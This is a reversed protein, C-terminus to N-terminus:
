KAVKKLIIEHFIELGERNLENFDYQGQKYMGINESFLSMDSYINGDTDEISKYNTYISDELTLLCELLPDQVM